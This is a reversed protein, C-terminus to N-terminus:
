HHTPIVDTEYEGPGPLDLNKGTFGQTKVGMHFKPKEQGKEFDGTIVYNGPGPVKIRPVM